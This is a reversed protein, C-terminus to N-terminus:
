GRASARGTARAPAAKSPAAKSAASARAATKSPQNGVPHEVAWETIIHEFAQDVSTFGMATAVSTLIEEIAMAQEEFLKFKFIKVLKKEGKTGGAEKYSTKINENLEVVTCQEALELLEDANDEEMVAAIKAAKAWGIAAVRDVDLGYKSSKYYIDILYMAKRYETNLQELVYLGFGGKEAYRKDVKKYAGTKRVHFLVGGLKYDTAASEEVVELALELIDESADVLALIEPDEQEETLDGYKDEDETAAKGKPTNLKGKATKAATKAPTKAPAKATTKAPAKSKTVPKEEPEPEPEPEPEKAAARTGRAPAKAPAAAASRSARAPKAPLEPIAFEEEFINVEVFEANKESVARKPNFDPNPIRVDVYRDEHNVGVVTYEADVELMGQDEDPNSLGLFIVTDGEKVQMPKNAM